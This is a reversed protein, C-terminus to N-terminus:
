VLVEEILMIQGVTWDNSKIFKGFSDKSMKEFTFELNKDGEKRVCENVKSDYNNLYESVELKEEDSLGSNDKEDQWKRATEIIEDHRDGKLKEQADKVFDDWATATPKMEKMAGIVLFQDKDDLKTIKAENIIRYAAVVDRTKM